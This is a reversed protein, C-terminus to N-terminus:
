ETISTETHSAHRPRQLYGMLDRIENENLPELLGQPMISVDSKKRSAVDSLPFVLRENVTQISITEASASEILGTIVRGDETEVVEMQYDKAVTASPDIINELMYDLNSRQAGTIDPGISGGEGFLQHCSSCQKTFLHRGREM